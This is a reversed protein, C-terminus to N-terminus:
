LKKFFAEGFVEKHNARYQALLRKLSGGARPPNISLAARIDNVSCFM